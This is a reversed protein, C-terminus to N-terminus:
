SAGGESSVFLYAKPYWGVGLMPMAERLDQVAARMGPPYEDAYAADLAPTYLRRATRDAGRELEFGARNIWVNVTSDFVEWQGAVRIEVWGHTGGSIAVIRWDLGLAGAIQAQYQSYSGCDALPDALWALLSADPDHVGYQHSVHAQYMAFLGALREPQTEGFLLALRPTNRTFYARVADLAEADTDAGVALDRLGPIPLPREASWLRGPAIVDTHTVTLLAYAKVGAAVGLLFLLLGLWLWFFARPLASRRPRIAAATM